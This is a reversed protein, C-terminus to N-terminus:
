VAGLRRLDDVIRRADRYSYVGIKRALRALSINEGQVAAEVIVDLAQRRRVTMRGAPRGRNNMPHEKPQLGNIHQAIGAIILHLSWAADRGQNSAHRM